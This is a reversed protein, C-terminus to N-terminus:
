IPHEFVWHLFPIALAGLGMLVFVGGLMGYFLYEDGREKALKVILYSYGYCVLFFVVIFGTFYYVM